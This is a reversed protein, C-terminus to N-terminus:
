AVEKVHSARDALAMRRNLLDDVICGAIDFPTVTQLGRWAPV